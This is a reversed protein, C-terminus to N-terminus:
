GAIEELVGKEALIRMWAHIAPTYDKKRGEVRELDTSLAGIETAYQAIADGQDASVKAALSELHASMRAPTLTIQRAPSLDPMQGLASHLARLLVGHPIPCAVAHDPTPVRPEDAPPMAGLLTLLPQLNEPITAQSVMEFTVCYEPFKEPAPLEPKWVTHAPATDGHLDGLRQEIVELVRANSAIERCLDRLPSKCMALLNFQCGSSYSEM